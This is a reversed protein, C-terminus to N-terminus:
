EKIMRRVVREGYEAEFIMLYIGKQLKETPITIREDGALAVDMVRQGLINTVTLRTVSRANDLTISSGFPNPYVSLAALANEEVGTTQMVVLVTKDGNAVTFTGNHTQYGYATVTFSYTGNPLNKIAQGLANTTLTGHGAITITAGIIANNNQNIILFTVQYKILPGFNATLTVDEAPMSYDFEAETSVVEDAANTWNVFQFDEEPTATVTVMTGEPYEGGGSVTGAEDPNALLTLIYTPILEFNATLIVDEAPMTFEFEAETSVEEDAANTWNMFRYGASPNASVPIVDDEEYAGAGSVMGGETPNALLTLVYSGTQMFNATLTVDAAPMTYDFAFNTSVVVGSEDTWNVFEFGVNATAAVGVVQGAEYEGGGGVSGGDAPNAVLTLTYTPITVAEFNATLTVDEAPMTYDFAFNTSVVVGSEDTWNVLEFSVNATAAVGVVQGAEYEGGGGVSGGDAPNAVLTLTYTPITVAEFNATLTVDEAPMTYDFAFNTSVVVGSEDTWNVFEFGVNATAAVGVVQGAEYEGGGGVSGGDAPNAVLTLTYTPIPEFNATLTVDNAPMTYEFEVEDSVEEDAANTWNVFFYGANPTATVPVVEGEEYVGSGTVTGGEVPDAILTLIYTPIPEFNATLIVDNAPMTYEFEAEDSVEEDAANTWNVFFYGANPTATVTVVDDEEYAGAGIVVGGEPPNALLTLTYSGTQTFNATLIVDEAPMIYGFAADTSVVADIEDTWNLFEFGTNAMAAVAVEEGEEYEGGGTVIGAIFPNATLTLTYLPPSAVAFPLTVIASEGTSYLAQVGAVYDGVVLGTFLYEKDEIPGETTQLEGDLYVNFGVFEKSSKMGEPLSKLNAPVDFPTSIAFTGSKTELGIRVNDIQTDANDDGVLRVAVKISQDLYAELSVTSEYWVWSTWVGINQWNWIPTWTSGNDTSVEITLQANPNPDVSWYYSSNWNFIVASGPQVIMVPSILWTDINYGYNCMAVYNGDPAVGGHADDTPYWYSYGSDGPTGSGQIFEDWADFTGGEFSDAFYPEGAALSWTFLATGAADNVEIALKSPAILTEILVIELTTDDNIEEEEEYPDYGIVSVSVTYTGPYVNAITFEGNDNTVASYNDYGVMNVTAGGIPLDDNGMVTGSVTYQPIADLEVDLLTTEDAEIVVDEEVHTYYGLLSFEVDYTGAFLNPFSYTGDAATHTKSYTGLIRVLVGELPDTGDTVTGELAGFGTMIFSIGINPYYNLVSGAPPQQPNYPSSDNAASRSRGAADTCLFYQESVYSDDLKYSYIVLNGGGYIYIGDLPIFIDNTGAPFDVTGDFVLQLTSPDVWGGSLDTLETEGMWIQVSKNNLDQSFSNTYQIGTIIGGGVGIEEALYITQSLSYNWYFNYPLYQTATGTGITAVVLEEEVSQVVISKLATQNNGQIEDDEFDVFGYISMPGEDEEAPIWALQYQQTEAFEIAEGAVSALEVGGEKMLKVSYDSQTATEANQVTITYIFEMGVTPAASGALSVAVLDNDVVPEIIVDDINWNNIQYVDGEYKFCIKMTSAGAPVDFYVEVLQAPLSGAVTHTWVDVWDGNDFSAQVALTQGTVSYNSLYNRFKLRLGERGDTGFTHTVLRSVGNFSPSWNLRLEPAAGGALNTNQVSWNTTGLGDVTWGAPLQGTSIGTFPEYLLIGEAGLLAVNSTGTGGEGIENSATVTYHYNGMGPNFIDTYETVELDEAVVVDGPMRVLKYRTEAPDIYGGHVGKNPATWTIQGGNAVGTLLVNTPAGPADHGLWVSLAAALGDGASNTGFTIFTYMGEDTGTFAFTDEGGIVPSDNVYIPDEESSLFLSVSTLETLDDGEVTKAPNSWLIDASVVGLDAPVARFNTPAEPADPEALRPVICIGFGYSTYNWTGVDERYQMGTGLGGPQNIWLFWANADTNAFSVWFTEPLGTIPAYPVFDWHYVFYDEMFTEGTNVHNLAITQVADIIESGVTGGNDNYFKVEFNLPDVGNAPSWSGNYLAQIGFFRIASIPSNFGEVRHAVRYGGVVSSNLGNDFAVPANSYTAEPMCEVARTPM